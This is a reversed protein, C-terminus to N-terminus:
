PSLNRTARSSQLFARLQPNGQRIQGLSIDFEASDFDGNDFDDNDFGDDDDDEDDNPQTDDFGETEAVPKRTTSPGDWLQQQVSAFANVEASRQSNGDNDL